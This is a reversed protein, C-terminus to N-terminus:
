KEKENVSLKGMCLVWLKIMKLFTQTYKYEYPCMADNWNTAPAVVLTEVRTTWYAFCTSFNCSTYDTIVIYSPFCLWSCANEKLIPLILIYCRKICLIYLITRMDKLKKIIFSPLHLVITLQKILWFGKPLSPWCCSMDGSNVSFKQMGLHTTNTTGGENTGIHCQQFIQM